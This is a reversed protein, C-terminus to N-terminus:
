SDARNQDRPRSRRRGRHAGRARSDRAMQVMDGLNEAIQEELRALEDLNTPDDEALLERVREMDPASTEGRSKAERLRALRKALARRVAAVSSSALKQMAILVLVVM